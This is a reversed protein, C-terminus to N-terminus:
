KLAERVIDDLLKDVAGLAKASRDAGGTALRRHSVYVTGPEKPLTYVAISYPCYVINHADAEMTDRSLRASCFELVDAQNYIQRTRGLDKGTRELMNGVRATYNLVMGRNEIAMVVRDRVEDFKGKASQVVVVPAAAEIRFPLAILGTLMLLVLTTKM